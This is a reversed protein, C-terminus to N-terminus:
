NLNPARGYQADPPTEGDWTTQWAAEQICGDIIRRAYSIQDGLYDDTGTIDELAALEARAKELFRGVGAYYKASASGRDPRTIRELRKAFSGPAEKPKRWWQWNM